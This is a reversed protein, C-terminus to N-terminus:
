GNGAAPVTPGVDETEEADVTVLRQMLAAPDTDEVDQQRILAAAATFAQFVFPADQAPPWGAKARTLDYRVYDRNDIAADFVRGDDLTVKAHVRAPLSTVTM